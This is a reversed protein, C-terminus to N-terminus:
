RCKVAVKARVDDQAVPYASVDPLMEAAVGELHLGGDEALAHGGWVHRASPMCIPLPQVNPLLFMSITAQSSIRQSNAHPSFFITMRGLCILKGGWSPLL